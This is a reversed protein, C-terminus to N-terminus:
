YDFAGYEKALDVIMKIENQTFGKKLFEESWHGRGFKGIYEYEDQETNFVTRAGHQIFCLWESRTQKGKGARHLTLLFLAWNSIVDLRKQQNKLMMPCTEDTEYEGKYCDACIWNEGDDDCVCENHERSNIIIVCGCKTKLTEEENHYNNILVNLYKRLNETIKNINDGYKTTLIATMSVSKEWLEEAQVKTINHEKMIFQIMEKSLKKTEAM